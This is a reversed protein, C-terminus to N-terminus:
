ATYGPFESYFRDDSWQDYLVETELEDMFLAHLFEPVSGPHHGWGEGHNDCYLVSEPGPEWTLRPEPATRWDLLEALRGGAPQELAM